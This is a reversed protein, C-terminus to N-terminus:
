YIEYSEICLDTENFLDIEGDGVWWTNGNIGKCLISSQDIDNIVTVVEGIEV